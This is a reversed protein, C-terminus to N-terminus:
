EEDYEEAGASDRGVEEYDKELAALDERAESFEGEEMGEGVYWHVFARKAYMLDFKHDLRAWAEAIATTNSLMCVARQVKALDGGPVVTPPQYNIGVKFGTPCWDVFQISRRSKIAAIAANVDKPVVDGRYLLCCAMYKGRRPDCKVMQNSFEFCANTIEPVSLQEHYAKEASIIPAYTTLPFHIRPYPVLNTQFETLDVNLAGDFRLSATISSVIQGILRNLNTYTPREIDLNRNCIDYIAENDVMFSCDSHELTTHTTLISNYPEVVATSVQPAPYVSFELKSKKSYEVSLRHDLQGLDAQGGEEGWRQMEQHGPCCCGSLWHLFCELTTVMKRARDAVSDIIEKGITYHGRAYNNAADEKGSILQEPHFLTRYTGSRIEDIVTPELDVFIARPVYKGSGTESFFTGFSSDVQKSSASSSIIGDPEIGHELCYLEWCSNGMQVGAQGIHISICER